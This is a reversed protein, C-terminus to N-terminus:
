RPAGRLPEAKGITSIDVETTGEDVSETSLHRVVPNEPSAPEAGLVGSPSDATRPLWERRQGDAGFPRIALGSVETRGPPRM